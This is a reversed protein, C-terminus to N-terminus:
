RASGTIVAVRSTMKRQLSFFVYKKRLWNQRENTIRMAIRELKKRKRGKKRKETNRRKMERKYGEHGEDDREGEYEREKKM